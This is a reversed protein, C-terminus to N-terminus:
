RNIGRSGVGVIRWASPAPANPAPATSDARASSRGRFPTSARNISQSATRWVAYSRPAEPALATSAAVAASM